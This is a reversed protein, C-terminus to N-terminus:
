RGHTAFVHIGGDKDFAMVDYPQAKVGPVEMGPSGIPMGAVAIGAIAPREKLLRQVDAAPVHGELVYGDVLATHCSEVQGPVGHRAKFAGFNGTDTTRVTFGEERLHEVWKSCCGCTPDKYVDVVPWLSGSPQSQTESVASVPAAASAADDSRGAFVAVGVALVAALAVGSGIWAIKWARRSSPVIQKHRVRKGM